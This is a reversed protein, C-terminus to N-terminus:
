LSGEAFHFDESDDADPDACMHLFEDDGEPIDGLFSSQSSSSDEGESKGYHTAGLM